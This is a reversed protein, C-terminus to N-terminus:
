MTGFRKTREDDYEVITTTNDDASGLEEAFKRLSVPEKIGRWCIRGFHEFHAANCAHFSNVPRAARTDLPLLNPHGNLLEPSEAISTREFRECDM